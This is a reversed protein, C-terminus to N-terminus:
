LRALAAEAHGQADDVAYSEVVVGNPDILIAVRGAKEQDLSSAAGYAMATTRESDCLLPADLGIDDRWRHLDDVPSFTIGIVSM